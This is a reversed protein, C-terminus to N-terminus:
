QFLSNSLVLNDVEAFGPLREGRKNRNGIGFPRVCKMNDNISRLGITYDFDSMIDIHTRTM